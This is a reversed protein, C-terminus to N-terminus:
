GRIREKLRDYTLQYKEAIALAYALGSAPRREVRYTRVAPDKPDVTGVFSATKESFSAMESLFTVWVCLLDSETIRTMVQRSLYIADQLTTSSFVENMILLSAPTARDLIRRIRMLDDQLKGRLTGTKEAREFHTFIRDALFLRAYTGPVPCGLSALYHLQGFMRAFTTKGGQNPGTVVVVREPGRLSFSNCVIGMGEASLKDALALDFADQACVEKSTQSLLPYTFSLGGRRFREIYTLYAVYFQVERDFRSIRPDLYGAHEECYAGLSRFIAPNLRAVGELIQAEIHNLGGGAPLKALYDGAAGRRFKEFTRELVTSYDAEGSYPLVTVSSGKIALCYRIASLDSAVRRTDAALAGFEPSATYAALYERLAQMGRSELHCTHLAECLDEVAECYAAVANLFWREREYPYRSKEALQLCGRMTRMGESFTTVALMAARNELDRMVEQRYTLLEPDRLPTHFFPELSYEKWQATVAAVIQDLNLDPFFDPAEQAEPQPDEPGRLLISHFTGLGAGTQSAAEAPPAADTSVPSMSRM